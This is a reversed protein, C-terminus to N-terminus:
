RELASTLLMASDTTARASHPTGIDFTILGGAAVTTSEGDIDFAVRGRVVQISVAGEVSHKSLEAGRALAILTVRMRGQSALTKAARRSRSAIARERLPKELARLDFQLTRGRLAHRKAYTHGSSEPTM